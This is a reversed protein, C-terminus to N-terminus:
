KKGRCEDCYVQTSTKAFFKKKCVLCPIKIRYGRHKERAQVTKNYVKKVM